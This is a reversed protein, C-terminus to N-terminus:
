YDEYDSAAKSENRVVDKKKKDEKGVKAFVVVAFIVVFVAGLVIAAIGYASLGSSSSSTTSGSAALATTSTLVVNATDEGLTKLADIESDTAQYSDEVQQSSVLANFQPKAKQDAPLLYSTWHPEQHNGQGNLKIGHYYVNPESAKNKSNAQLEALESKLAAIKQHYNHIAQQRMKRHHQIREMAAISRSIAEIQMRQKQVSDLMRFLAANMGPMGHPRRGSPASPKDVNVIPLPQRTVPDLLPIVKEGTQSVVPVIVQHTKPDVATGTKADVVPAIPADGNSTPAVQAVSAVHAPASTSIPIFTSSHHNIVPAVAAHKHNHNHPKSQHL